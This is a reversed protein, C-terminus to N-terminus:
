RKKALLIILLVVVALLAWTSYKNSGISFTGTYLSTTASASDLESGGFMSGGLGALLGAPGAVAGLLGSAGGLMSGILGSGGALGATETLTSGLAGTAKLGTLGATLSM